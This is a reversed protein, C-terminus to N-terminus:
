TSSPRNKLPNTTDNPPPTHTHPPPTLNKHKPKKPSLSFRRSLARSCAFASTVARRVEEEGRGVTIDPAVVPSRRRAAVPPM